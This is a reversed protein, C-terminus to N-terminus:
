PRSFVAGHAIGKTTGGHPWTKDDLFFGPEAKGAERFRTDLAIQGTTSDFRALVVRHQLADYGTVVVRRTDPSVSLWHVEDKAGLAMRSVERPRAPDAIDLVVVASLAPVTVLYYHGVIAPIACYTGKKQPFTSVLTGSPHDSDLGSLLYLGCNFTSVLLTKGDAMLRPEATLHGENGAPGDPLTFSKLLTLDSLRWLQLTNSAPDDQHMDTSTTLIRDFAPIVAASYTRLGASAGPYDASASRVVAGAPTLEALGGTRMGRAGHTMQFTALVNGSPLRVFTHPHSLGNVDGFQSVIRPADPTSLDFIFSQGGNFGNAFLQRDGALSHETHHPDNKRGPVPLTTVLSGYRATDGPAGDTVDVVALFDPQASDAAATWLYLFQRDATSSGAAPAAAGVEKERSPPQSCATLLTLAVLMGVPTRVLPSPLRRRTRDRPAPGPTATSM